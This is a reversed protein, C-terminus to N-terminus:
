TGGAKEKYHGKCAKTTQSYTWRDPKVKCRGQASLYPGLTGREFHACGGCTGPEEKIERQYYGRM